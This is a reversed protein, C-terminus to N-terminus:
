TPEEKSAHAIAQMIGLGAGLVLLFVGIDFVVATLLELTGLHVVESTASPSHTLVPQGLMVPVFAVGLAVLLGSVAVVPAHAVPLLREVRATGFTLYQSLVALVAIVGANFGDGADVYGKVLVALAVLLIPALLLRVVLQTLVSSM